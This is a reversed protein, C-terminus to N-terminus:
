FGGARINAVVGRLTELLKYHDRDLIAAILEMETTAGKAELAEMLIKRGMAEQVRIEVGDVSVKPAKVPFPVINSPEPTAPAEKPAQVPHDAYWSGAMSYNGASISEVGSWVHIKRRVPKPEGRELIMASKETRSVITIRSILNSDGIHRRSYEHGAIFKITEM